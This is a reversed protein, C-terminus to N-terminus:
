ASTPSWPTQHKIISNLYCLLKRAAAIVAVKTPKGSQKLRQYLQKIPPNFRIASIAALYLIRRIPARGGRIRRIGRRRGSEDAFPALGALASIQKNSSSGLEPLEALLTASTTRGVGPVSQLLEDNAQFDPHEKIKQDLDRDIDEIEGTLWELHRQLSQQTQGSAQRLRTQENARMQVLQRRRQVLERLESQRALPLEYLPLEVAVSYLALIRADIRDTKALAGISKAYDRVRKPNVLSVPLGAAALSALALAEYGGSAEIVIRELRRLPKFEKAFRELAVSDNSISIISEDGDFFIVLEDKAVDIGIHKTQKKTNGM